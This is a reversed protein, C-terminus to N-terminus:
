ETPEYHFWDFDAHGGNPNPDPTLGFLGVKAGIWEGPSAAFRGGIRSFAEGEASWYFRCVGKSMTTRLFVTDGEFSQSDVIQLPEERIDPTKGLVLRNCGSERMLGVFAHAFGMVVLGAREGETAPRFTMRTEVQFAYDQPKQLLLNGAMWLNAEEIYQAYLRLRGPAADLSYWEPKPNAPWQWQLGLPGSDFEDSSLPRVIPYVGGVDPKRHRLVPEGIGRKDRNVGMLPWDDVWEVPQLHVVRGYPRIEQFHLFWSEGSQTDVWAGQHPGNIPTKGQHLVVRHEYPGMPRRSRLALQWGNLVGGAPALIYYYGNRKYMKPGEATPHNEEDCFAVQGKDLVQRGDLSMRCVDLRHKIGCRSNAFAHVLYAQGDEDWFPCADIWGKVKHVCHLPSWPGAPNEATTMFVGEDPAGFFIWYKGEHYRLSPAWVGCGHAPQDYAPFPMRELAHGVITWNVLDRSHLLPLGPLCNFSSATMYYDDGVRIADPDSYDSALIPNTYTGDGEDGTRKM